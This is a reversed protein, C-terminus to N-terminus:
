PADVLLSEPVPVTGYDDDCTTEIPEVAAQLAAPPSGYPDCTVHTGPAYAIFVDTHLLDAYRRATAPAPIDSLYAAQDFWHGADRFEGRKMHHLYLCYAATHNGAGAAFQWWFQAGEHLGTVELLCAFTLAGQPEIRPSDELLEVANIANPDNVVLASLSALHRRAQEHLTSYAPHPASPGPRPYDKATTDEVCNWRPADRVLHEALRSTIRARAAAHDYDDYEGQLALAEALLDDINRDPDM